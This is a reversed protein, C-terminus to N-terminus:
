KKVVWLKVKTLVEPHLKIPIEFVGLTKIPEELVISNKPIEIEEVKLAEIIEHATISGYIKENEQALVSITISVKEIKLKLDLFVQKLKDDERKKKLNQQELKKMNDPTALLGLNRALIFNRAYGDALKVVKGAKGIGEVDKTLIVEM